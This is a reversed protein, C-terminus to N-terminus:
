TQALNRGSMNGCIRWCVGDSNGRGSVGLRVNSCLLRIGLVLIRMRFLRMLKELSRMRKGRKENMFDYIIWGTLTTSRDKGRIM